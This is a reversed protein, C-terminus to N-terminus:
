QSPKWVETVSLKKNLQCSNMLFDVSGYRQALCHFSFSSQYRRILHHFATYSTVKVNDTVTIIDRQATM